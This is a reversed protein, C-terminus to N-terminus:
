AFIEVMTAILTLINEFVVPDINAVGISAAGSIVLSVLLKRTQTETIADLFKQIKTQETM